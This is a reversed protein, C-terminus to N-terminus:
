ATLCMYDEAREGKALEEIHQTEHLSIVHPPLYGGKSVGGTLKVAAHVHWGLGARKDRQKLISLGPSSSGFTSSWDGSPTWDVANEISIGDNKYPALYHSYLEKALADAEVSKEVPILYCHSVDGTSEGHLAKEFTGLIPAEKVKARVQKLQDSRVGTIPSSLGHRGPYYNLNITTM